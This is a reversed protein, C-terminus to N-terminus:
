EETIVSFEAIGAQKREDTIRTAMLRIQTGPTAPFRIEQEIPNHRINSFEGKAVRKDNVYLEYDSIHGSADRGQNPTYRFGSIRAEKSLKLILEQKGAPLYYTTYGNGDLIMAAKEDKPSLITYSGAPLDFSQVSVPSSKDFAKDWAIAKITGKQAFTFPATYAPSDKTPTSGDTTFHIESGTDGAQIKVEDAGNRTIVPETVLAPALYAEVTNICLPGRADTFNVRLKEATVTPFRVIRKYGVTTTSDVTAVTEWLGNKEVEINFAKVRQGLPIYEQILLRNMETPRTLTFTLSANTVGDETAWYSDWNGDTAKNAGFNRGRKNSAEVYIGKLLNERLDQQITQYWEVARASDVPNIRGDLAVPFNLLFNANHGVSNYYLNVLHALSRVQHDERAHYFWGPRISVDCEGGLWQEGDEMGWQNQHYDTEKSVTYLSWQTNGAWGEENGIWRIDPVTGGFIMAGPHLKKITKRAEEYQYYTKPDISRAEDAGGYWGSGGNAGDFWYEFLPGYNSILEKMQAHFTAVYEPKGYNANNRDWPSLYIGFKLGHRKCADSLERVMDGKGEKWPSQKVSYDTTETPWLCFGDHHKATLIVGKLGAAKITRVWQDCDLNTPNFTAAPTNGYGWELDNFTNLGFHVFAYTEMKHWAIQEPTPLPLIPAPPTAEKCAFLTSLCIGLLLTNLHKM